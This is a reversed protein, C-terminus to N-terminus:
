VQQFLAQPQMLIKLFLLFLQIEVLLVGNLIERQVLTRETPAFFEGLAAKLDDSVAGAGTGPILDKPGPAPFAAVPTGTAMSELIVLGFTDTWSPFVSVDADAFHRALEEGSKSGTFVAKPYKKKLEELQPGPGVVVKTGPLDLELFSEINKEVAVRGVYVFVPGELDKYVGGDIGRRDPHFQETDVGRAQLLSLPGVEVTSLGAALEVQQQANQRVVPSEPRLSASRDRLSEQEFSLTLVDDIARRLGSVNRQQQQGSMQQGM